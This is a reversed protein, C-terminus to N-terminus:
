FPTSIRSQSQGLKRNLHEQVEALIDKDTRFDDELFFKTWRKGYRVHTIEDSWDQDAFLQSRADGNAEYERVRPEKRPMFFGELGLTLYAVRHLVPLDQSQDFYTLDVTDPEVGMERLRVLGFESHRVEDWFQRSFDHFFEWPISAAEADFLVSALLAAAYWENFFVKFQERASEAPPLKQRAEYTTLQGRRIRSDFVVTAPRQFRTPSGAIVTAATSSPPNLGSVGGAAALLARLTAAHTGAAEDAVGPVKEAWRTHREVAEAARQLLRSEAANATPDCAALHDRYAALLAGELEVCAAALFGRENPAHLAEDAAGRLVPEVNAGPNGGRMESLRGLFAHANEAHDWVHYGLQYKIEFSPAALFWGAKMRLLARELFAYRRLLHASLAIPVGRFGKDAVHQQLSLPPAGRTNM